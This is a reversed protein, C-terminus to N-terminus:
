RVVVVSRNAHHVVRDSVSGLLWRGVRGSGRAGMVILDINLKEAQECITDVPSGIEVLKQIREAPFGEAAQDLLRRAADIQEPTSRSLEIVADLPGIPFVRPPDIVFLLTLQAGVQAALEHAFRAAKSSGESGDVAVLM